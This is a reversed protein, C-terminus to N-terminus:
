ATKEPKRDIWAKRDRIDRDFLLRNLLLEGTPVDRSLEVRAGILRKTFGLLTVFALGITVPLRDEIGLWSAAFWSWFPLSLLAVFVGLAMQRVLGPLYAIALIIGGMLPSAMFIVGLSTIMGKGGRFGIFLPWDHGVIAMFGVAMQQGVSLGILGALWFALMSKGMDFLAVPVALWKSTTRAVNSSGTVGTGLKRIDVGKFWKVGLYAAPISGLLYAGVLMLVFKIWM